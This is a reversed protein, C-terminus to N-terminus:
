KATPSSGWPGLTIRAAHGMSDALIAGSAQQVARVVLGGLAGGSPSPETVREDQPAPGPVEVTQRHQPTNIGPM